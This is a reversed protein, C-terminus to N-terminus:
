VVHLPLSRPLPGTYNTYASNIVIVMGTVMVMVMVMVMVVVVVMGLHCVYVSLPNDTYRM